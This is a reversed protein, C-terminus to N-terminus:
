DIKLRLKKSHIPLWVSNADRSAISSGFTFNQHFFVCLLYKSANCIYVIQADVWLRDNTCFFDESCNEHSSDIFDYFDCCLSIQVNKINVLYELNRWNKTMSFPPQFRHTDIFPIYITEKTYEDCDMEFAKRDLHLDKIKGQHWVNDHLFDVQNNIKFPCKLLINQKLTDIFETCWLNKIPTPIM